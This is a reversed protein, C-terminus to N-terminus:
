RGMAGGLTLLVHTQLFKDNNSGQSLVGLHPSPLTTSGETVASGGKTSSEHQSPM